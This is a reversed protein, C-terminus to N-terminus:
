VMFDVLIGIEENQGYFQILIQELKYMIVINMASLAPSQLVYRTFKSPFIVRDIVLSKGGISM